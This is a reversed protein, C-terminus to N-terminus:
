FLKKIKEFTTKFVTMFILKVDSYISGNKCYHLDYNLKNKVSEISYDYGCKVQALGTLGPKVDLREEYKPITSVFQSVFHPREPRPGVFSMEGKIINILQPLEDLHTYRLIEGIDTVRPDNQSAWVPGCKKEADDRM